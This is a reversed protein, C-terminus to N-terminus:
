ESDPDFRRIARIGVLLALWSLAWFWFNSPHIVLGVLVPCLCLVAIVLTTHRRRQRLLERGSADNSNHEGTTDSKSDNGAELQRFFDDIDKPM